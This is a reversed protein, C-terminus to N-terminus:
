RERRGWRMEWKKGVEDGEEELRVERKKGM